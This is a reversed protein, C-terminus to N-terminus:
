EIKTNNPFHKKMLEEETLDGQPCEKRLGKCMECSEAPGELFDNCWIHHGPFPDYIDTM